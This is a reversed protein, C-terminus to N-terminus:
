KKRLIPYETADSGLVDDLFNWNALGDDSTPAVLYFALRALKQNMPVAWSGAPATAGPAAHWEGQLTRLGHSGFDISGNRVPAQTNSTITFSEVGSVPATLQRMQVGHARLLDLAATENAPIYYEQAVDETVSPEFWMMDVMQEVRSVDKRRGM